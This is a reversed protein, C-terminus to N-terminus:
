KFKLCFLFNIIPYFLNIRKFENHKEQGIEKQRGGQKKKRSCRFSYSIMFSVYGFLNLFLELM